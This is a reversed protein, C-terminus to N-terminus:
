RTIVSLEKRHTAQLMNFDLKAFKLLTKNYSDDRPYFSLFYLTDLRPLTKCLPRHLAHNIQEALNPCVYSVASKLHITTFAIAEDLIDEGRIALHAAEYLSLLGQVDSILTAKFKSEEDKFKEFVDSQM